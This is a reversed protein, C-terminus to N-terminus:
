ANWKLLAAARKRSEEIVSMPDSSRPMEEVRASSPATQDSNSLTVRDQGSPKPTSPPAEGVKPVEKPAEFRALWDKIGKEAIPLLESQDEVIRGEKKWIQDALNWLLEAQEDYKSLFPYELKKEEILALSTQKFSQIATTEADQAAKIEAAQKAAVEAAEKEQQSKKFHSVEDLAKQAIQDPTMKGGNAARKVTSDLDHGFHKLAELPDEKLRRDRADIEAYRAERDKLARERDLVARERKAIAAFHRSARDAETQPAAADASKEPAASVAPSPANTPPTPAAQVSEALVPAAGPTDM